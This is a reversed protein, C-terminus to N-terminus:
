YKNINKNEYGSSSFKEFNKKKQYYKGTWELDFDNM